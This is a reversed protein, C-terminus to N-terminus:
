GVANRRRRLWYGYGAAVAAVWVIAGSFGAIVDSPHHVGLYVRSTGILFVMVGSVAWIAAKGARNKMRRTVIAAMAGFYCASVLAHGSPFSYSSPLAYGFFPEPRPRSFVLKLSQNLTEGGLAAIVFLTAAHRRSAALLRWVVVAGMPVLFMESGMFTIKRMISTLLPSALSHVADRVTRDFQEIEGRMMRTALWGFVLLAALASLFGAILTQRERTM